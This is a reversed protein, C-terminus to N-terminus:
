ESILNAVERLSAATKRFAYTFISPVLVTSDKRSASIAKNQGIAFAAAFSMYCNAFLGDSIVFVVKDFRDLVEVYFGNNQKLPLLDALITVEHGLKSLDSSVKGADERGDPAHFVLIKLDKPM